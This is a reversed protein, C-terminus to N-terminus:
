QCARFSKYLEGDRSDLNIVGFTTESYKKVEHDPMSYTLAEESRGYFISKMRNMVSNIENVRKEEGSYQHNVDIHFGDEQTSAEVGLV